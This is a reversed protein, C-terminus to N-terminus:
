SVRAKGMGTFETGDPMQVKQGQPIAQLFDIMSKRAEMVEKDSKAKNADATVKLYNDIFGPTGYFQDIEAKTSDPVKTPDLYALRSLQDKYQDRQFESLKIKNDIYTQKSDRIAKAYDKAETAKMEAIKFQKDRIAQEAEALASQRKQELDNLQLVHENNLKIM